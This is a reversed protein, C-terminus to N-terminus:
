HAGSATKQKELNSLLLLLFLGLVPGDFGLPLPFSGEGRSKAFSAFGEVKFLGQVGVGVGM